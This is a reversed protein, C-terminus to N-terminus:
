ASVPSHYTQLWLSHPLLIILKYSAHALDRHPEIEVSCIVEALVSSITHHGLRLHKRHGLGTSQWSLEARAQCSTGSLDLGAEQTHAAEVEM